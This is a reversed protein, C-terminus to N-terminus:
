ILTFTDLSGVKKDRDWAEGDMIGSINAPEIYLYETLSPRLIIPVNSGALLTVVDGEVIDAFCIGTNGSSTFFLRGTDVAMQFKVM